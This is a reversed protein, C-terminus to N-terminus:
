LSVHIENIQKGQSTISTWSLKATNKAVMKGIKVELM